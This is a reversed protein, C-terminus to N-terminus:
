QMLTHPLDVPKNLLLGHSGDADNRCILVVARRFNDDDMFPEALLLTGPKVQKGKEFEYSWTKEPIIM